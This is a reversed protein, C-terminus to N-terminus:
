RIPSFPNKKTTGAGVPVVVKESATAPRYFRLFPTRSYKLLGWLEIELLPADIQFHYQIMNKNCRVM